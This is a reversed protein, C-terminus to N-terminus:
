CLVGSEAVHNLFDKRLTRALVEIPNNELDEPSVIAERVKRINWGLRVGKFLMVLAIIGMIGAAKEILQSSPEGLEKVPFMLCTPSEISNTLNWPILSHHLVSGYIEARIIYKTEILGLYNSWCTLFCFFITAILGIVIFLCVYKWLKQAAKRQEVLEQILKQFALKQNDPVKQQTFQSWLLEGFASNISSRHSDPVM